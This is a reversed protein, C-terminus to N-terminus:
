DIKLNIKLLHRKNKTWENYQKRNLLLANGNRYATMANPNNRLSPLSGGINVDNKEKHATASSTVTMQYTISISETCLAALWVLIVTPETRNMESFDDDPLHEDDLFSM